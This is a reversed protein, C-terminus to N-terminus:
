KVESLNAFMSVAARRFAPEIKRGEDDNRRGSNQVQFITILGEKPHIAMNTKWAGAHAIMGGGVTWGFGYGELMGEATQRTTM